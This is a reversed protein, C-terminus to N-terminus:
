IIKYYLDNWEPNNEEILSIKWDRHWNKLKKERLIAESIDDFCEYYVLRKVNHERTFGDSHGERHQYIRKLLDNTVGIYLTGRKQSALIYTFGAKMM